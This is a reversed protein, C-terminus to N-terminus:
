LEKATLILLFYTGVSESFIAGCRLHTAVSGQSIDTTSSTTAAATSVMIGRQAIRYQAWLHFLHRNWLRREKDEGDGDGSFVDDCIGGNGNGNSGDRCDVPEVTSALLHRQFFGGSDRSVRGDSRSARLANNDVVMTPM